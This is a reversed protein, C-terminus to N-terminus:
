ILNPFKLSEKLIMDRIKMSSSVDNIVQSLLQSFPLEEFYTLNGPDLEIGPDHLHFYPDNEIDLIVQNNYSSPFVDDISVNSPKSKCKIAKILNQFTNKSMSSM